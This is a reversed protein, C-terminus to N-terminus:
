EDLDGGKKRKKVQKVVVVAVVVVMIGTLFVSANDTLVDNRYRKFATSYYTRAMGIELYKM